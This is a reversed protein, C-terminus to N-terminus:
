PTKSNGPELDIQSIFQVYRPDDLDALPKISWSGSGLDDKVVGVPINAPLQGHVMHTVLFDGVAPSAEGEVAYLKLGGWKTGSVIGMYQGGFRVPIRSSVDNVLLIRAENKTSSVVRGVLGDNTRAVLGDALPGHGNLRAMVSRSFPGPSSMVKPVTMVVNDTYAVLRAVVALAENQEALEVARGRWKTMEALEVQLRRNEARLQALERMEDYVSVVANIPDQIIGISWGVSQAMVLRLQQLNIIRTADSVFITAALVLMVWLARLSQHQRERRGFVLATVKDPRM